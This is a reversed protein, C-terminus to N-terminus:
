GKVKQQGVGLPRKTALGAKRPYRASTPTIKKIIVITRKAEIFPVVIESVTEIRAGLEKVAEEAQALEAQGINAKQALFIGGVAILPIAYEALVSLPGVARALALDFAERGGINIGYDEARCCVAQINLLGAEEIFTAAFDTKKKVSDLLTMELNRFAIKLPLGPFGPGSGIDIVRQAASLDCAFSCSLSDLFHKKVVEAEDNISTLSIRGKSASLQSALLEFLGVAKDNLEIGLEQAGRILLDKNERKM